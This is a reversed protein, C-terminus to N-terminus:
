RPSWRVLAVVIMLSSLRLDSSILRFGGVIVFVSWIGVSGIAVCNWAGAQELHVVRALIPPSPRIIVEFINDGGRLICFFCGSCFFPFGEAASPDRNAM